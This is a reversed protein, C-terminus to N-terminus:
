FLCIENELYFGKNFNVNQLKQSFDSPRLVSWDTESKLIGLKTYIFGVLASCWFRNTKQPQNDKRFLAALWDSPYLDYPKNHCIKHIDDLDKNNFTNSKCNIKRLFVHGKGKYDNLIEEIPTFQVGLKLKNNEPDPKPEEGSEWVFIGKLPPNTFEPDKVIMGIHTYQSNTFFKIIWSILSFSGYNFLLLDGTNFNNM